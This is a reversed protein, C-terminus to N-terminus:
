GSIIERGARWAVLVRGVNLFCNFSEGEVYNLANSKTSQNLKQFKINSM